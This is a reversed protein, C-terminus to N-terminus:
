TAVGSLICLRLTTITWFNWRPVNTFRWTESSSSDLFGSRSNRRDTPRHARDIVFAVFLTPMLRFTYDFCTVMSVHVVDILRM